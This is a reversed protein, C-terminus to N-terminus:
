LNVAEEENKFNVAHTAAAIRQRQGFFVCAVVALLLFFVPIILAILALLPLLNSGGGDGEGNGGLFTVSFDPDYHFSSSFSPIM